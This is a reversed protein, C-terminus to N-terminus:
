RPAPSSPAPAHLMPRWHPARASVRMKDLARACGAPMCASAQPSTAERKPSQANSRATDCISWSLTGLSCSPAARSDLMVRMNKIRRGTDGTSRQLCKVQFKCISCSLSEPHLSADSYTGPGGQTTQLRSWATEYIRQFLTGLSCSFDGKGNKFSQGKVDQPHNCPPARKLHGPCSIHTFSM